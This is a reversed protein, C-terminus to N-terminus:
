RRSGGRERIALRKAGYLDEPRDIDYICGEDSCYIRSVQQAHERFIRAGGEDDPLRLFEDEMKRSIGVPHGPQEGLYPRALLAGDRLADAVAQITSAQMCPMDGLMVIWGLSPQTCNLGYKLSAGMGADADPCVVTQVDLDSLADSIQAQHDASCVVLTQGGLWASAEAVARIVPRGDPLKALLKLEAGTPDFRIGRGASLIITSIDM